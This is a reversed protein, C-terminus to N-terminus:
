KTPQPAEPPKGHAPEPKKPEVPARKKEKKPQLLEVEVLPFIKRNRLTDRIKAAAEDLSLGSVEIEGVLPLNVCGNRDVEYQRNWEKMEVVPVKKIRLEYRKGNAIRGHDVEKPEAVSLCQSFLLGLISLLIPKMIKQPSRSAIGARGAM